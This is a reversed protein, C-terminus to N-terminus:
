TCKKYKRLRKRKSFIIGRKTKRFYKERIKKNNTDLEILYGDEILFKKNQFFHYDMLNPYSTLDIFYSNLSDEIPILLLANTRWIRIEIENRYTENIRIEFTSNVTDIKNTYINDDSQSFTILEFIKVSDIKKKHRTRVEINHNNYNTTKIKLQIHSVHRATDLSKTIKYDDIQYKSNIILTDGSKDYNGHVTGGSLGAVFEFRFTSDLFIISKGVGYDYPNIHEYCNEQQQGISTSVSYIYKLKRTKGKKWPEDQNEEIIREIFSFDSKNDRKMKKIGTEQYTIFNFKASDINLSDPIPSYEFTIKRNNLKYNGFSMITGTCHNFHFEFQGNEKLIYYKSYMFSNVERLTDQCYSNTSIIALLLPLLLKM